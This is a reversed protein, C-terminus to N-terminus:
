DDEGIREKNSYIRAAEKMAATIELHNIMVLDSVEKSVELEKNQMAQGGIQLLLKLDM